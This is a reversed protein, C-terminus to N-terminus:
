MIDMADFVDRVNVKTNFCGDKLLEVGYTTIGKGSLFRMVKNIEYSCALLLASDYRKRSLVYKISSSGALIYIDYGKEKCRKKIETFLCLGCSICQIGKRTSPAPCKMHRLCHPALIVCSKSESFKKYHAKNKLSVILHDLKRTDSFLIYLSKLPTYFFDLVEAFFSCFFMKRKLSF